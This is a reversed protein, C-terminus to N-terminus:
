YEMRYWAMVNRRSLMLLSHAGASVAHMLLHTPEFFSWPVWFYRTFYGM